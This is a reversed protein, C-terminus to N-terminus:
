VSLWSIVDAETSDPMLKVPELPPDYVGADISGDIGLEALLLRGSPLELDFSLGGDMDVSIEPERTKTLAAKAIRTAMEVVWPDPHNGDIGAAFEDLATKVAVQIEAAGTVM